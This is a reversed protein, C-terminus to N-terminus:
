DREGVLRGHMLDDLQRAREPLVWLVELGHEDTQVQSLYGILARELPHTERANRRAHRHCILGLDLDFHHEVRRLAELRAVADAAGAEALADRLRRHSNEHEAFRATLLRQDAASLVVVDM